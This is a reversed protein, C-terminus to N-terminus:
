SSLHFRGWQEWGEQNVFVLQDNSPIPLLFFDLNEMLFWYRRKSLSDDEGDDDVEHHIGDTRLEAGEVFDGNEAIPSLDPTDSPETSNYTQWCSNTSKEM